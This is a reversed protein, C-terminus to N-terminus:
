LVFSAPLTQAGSAPSADAFRLQDMTDQDVRSGSEISIVGSLPGLDIAPPRSELSGSGGGCGALLVVGSLVLYQPLISKM